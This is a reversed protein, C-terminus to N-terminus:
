NVGNMPVYGTIWMLVHWGMFIAIWCPLAFLVAYTLMRPGNSQDDHTSM